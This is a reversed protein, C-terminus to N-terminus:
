WINLSLIYWQLHETALYLEVEKMNYIYIYMCIYAKKVAVYNGTDLNWSATWNSIKKQIPINNKERKAQM